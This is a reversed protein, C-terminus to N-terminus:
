IRKKGGLTVIASPKKLSCIPNLFISYFPYYLAPFFFCLIAYLWKLGSTTDGIYSNYCWSLRASGVATGFYFLISLTIGLVIFASGAVVASVVKSGSTITGDFNEISMAVNSFYERVSM